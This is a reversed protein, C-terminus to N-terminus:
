PTRWAGRQAAFKDRWYLYFTLVSLLPAALVVPVPVSVSLAADLSTRLKWAPNPEPM